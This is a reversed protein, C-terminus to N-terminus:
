YHIIYFYNLSVFHNKLGGSFCAVQACEIYLLLHYATFGVLILNIRIVNSVATASCENPM